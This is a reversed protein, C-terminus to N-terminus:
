NKKEVFKSGYLKRNRFKEGVSHMVDSIVKTSSGRIVNLSYSSWCQLLIFVFACIGPQLESITFSDLCIM